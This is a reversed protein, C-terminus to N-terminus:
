KWITDRDLLRLFFIAAVVATPVRLIWRGLSLTAARGQFYQREEPSWGGEPGIYLYIVKEASSQTQASPVQDVFGILDDTQNTLNEDAVVHIGSRKLSEPISTWSDTMQVKWMRGCQECAAQSIRQLRDLPLNKSDPWDLFDTKSFEIGSVGIETAQTVLESLADNRPPAVVLIIKPNPEPSQHRSIIKFEKPTLCEALASNGAGDMFLVKEGVRIRLSKLHKALFEDLHHEAITEAPPIKSIHFSHPHAM